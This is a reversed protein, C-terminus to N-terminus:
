CVGHLYSVRPPWALDAHESLLGLNPNYAPDHRLVHAWRRQMCEVERRFEDARPGLDDRGRSISEHHILEAFPTWVVAWGAERARLCFDIDNFAVALERADLGGLQEWTDRRVLMCAGTVASVQRTLALDGFYGLDFRDVGKHLHGALDYIGLTVGAHQITGNPYDLKAGVIGVGPRVVQTVMEELWDGGMVEVDDNLLLLLEGRAQEVAANNLASYNFPREDRIVTVVQEHARLYDLTPATRSGNDVVLIEYNDYLTQRRVSDLCRMLSRGDRTPVIISVLPRDGALEWRVRNRGTAPNWTVQGSQDTRVLHEEVARVGAVAAYPKASGSAATSEPHVRWHYLIHPVHRIADPGLRETVRLVLDWDQSGEFGVRFGGVEEVLDRRAVFLHCPYNEGLLMAPDFDPKFFPSFRRGTADLKDEDSYLFSVDPSQAITLAMVALAHEAMEDDHDLLVVWSGTALELASNSAASIHGNEQRRVVSIREDSAAYEALIAGVRADTSCDDALCLQWHPYLQRRVSEIAARLYPEPTDFVPVLVSFVPPDDLVATRQRLVARTDDTLTDYTAVWLDYSGGTADPLEGAAIVPSAPEATSRRRLRGYVKRLGRSYRFLKTEYIREVERKWEEIEAEKRETLTSLLTQNRAQEDLMARAAAHEATRRLEVQSLAEEAVAQAHLAEEEGAQAALAEDRAAAVQRRYEVNDRWLRQEYGGIAQEVSVGGRRFLVAHPAVFSADYSFDRHFGRDAFRRVWEEVPRVNIHSLEDFDEPSSSFLVADTHRCLNAIAADALRPPLHEVVELCTILDYHGEVEDTVSRVSVYPALAPPVQSIAFPSIDFGSADVGLARLGEVLLGIACGADLVTRPEITKAIRESVAAFFQDWVEVGRRYPTGREYHDYYEEDYFGQLVSILEEGTTTTEARDEDSLMELFTWLLATTPALDGAAVGGHDPRTPAHLADRPPVPLHLFQALDDALVKPEVLATTAVIISRRHECATLAARQIGTWLHEARSSSTESMEALVPISPGPPGVAFLLAVDGEAVDVWFDAVFANLPHWFVWPAVGDDASSVAHSLLDRSAERLPDLRRELETPGLLVPEGPTGGAQRVLRENGKALRLKCNAPLSRALGTQVLFDELQDGAGPAGLVLIGAPTGSPDGGGPAV